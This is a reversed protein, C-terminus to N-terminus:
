TVQPLRDGAKSKRHYCSHVKISFFTTSQLQPKACMLEQEATM